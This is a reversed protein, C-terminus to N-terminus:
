DVQFEKLDRYCECATRELSARDVICLLGRHYTIIGSDRLVNCAGTIGARRAGLHQAMEEHTLPVNDDSVRDQIMLLWTCFREELKHRGNCVAKQSLQALRRSLYRLVLRQMAGGRSFEQKIIDPRVRVATGGITVQSWYSPRPADLIASLGVIGDKGIIAAATTSGDKLFYVHSIVATEPFYIFDVEDAGFEYLDQGALLSVPELHLLLQAFDQGPLGTLLRNTLLGNFPITKANKYNSKARARDGLDM